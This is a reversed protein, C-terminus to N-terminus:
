GVCRRTVSVMLVRWAAQRRAQQGAPPPPARSCAAAPPGCLRWLGRSTRRGEWSSSCKSTGQSCCYALTPPTHTLALPARCVVAGWRARLAPTGGARRAGARTGRAWWGSGRRRSGGGGGAGGGAGWAGGRRGGWRRARDGPGGESAGCVRLHEGGCARTSSCDTATHPTPGSCCCESGRARRMDKGLLALRRCVEGREGGQEGQVGQMKALHRGLHTHRPPAPPLRRPPPPCACGEGGRRWGRACVCVMAIAAGAWSCRGEAALTPARMPPPPGGAALQAESCWRVIATPRVGRGARWWRVRGVCAKAGREAARTAGRRM